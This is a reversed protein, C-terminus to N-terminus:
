KGTLEHSSNSQAHKYLPLQVHTYFQLMKFVIIVTIWILHTFLVVCNSDRSGTCYSYLLGFHPTTSCHTM